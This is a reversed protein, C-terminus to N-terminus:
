SKSEELIQTAALIFAQEQISMNAAQKKEKWIIDYSMGKDFTRNFKRVTRRIFEKVRLIRKLEGGGEQQAVPDMDKM